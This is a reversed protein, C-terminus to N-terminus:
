QFNITIPSKTNRAFPGRVDTCGRGVYVERFNENTITAVFFCLLCPCILVLSM